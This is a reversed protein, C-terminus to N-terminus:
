EGRGLRGTYELDRGTVTTIKVAFARSMIM